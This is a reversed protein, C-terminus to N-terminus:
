FYLREVGEDRSSPFLSFQLHFPAAITASACNFVYRKFSEFSLFFIPSFSCDSVLAARKKRKGRGVRSCSSQEEPQM